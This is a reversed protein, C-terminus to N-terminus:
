FGYGGRQRLGAGFESEGPTSGSDVELMSVLLHDPLRDTQVGHECKDVEGTTHRQILLHVDSPNHPEIARRRFDGTTRSNDLHIVPSPRVSSM